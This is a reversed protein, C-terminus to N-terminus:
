IALAKLRDLRDTAVGTLNAIRKRQEALVGEITQALPAKSSWSWLLGHRESILDIAAEVEAEAKCRVSAAELARHLLNLGNVAGEKLEVLVARISSAFKESDEAESSSPKKNKRRKQPKLESSWALMDAM